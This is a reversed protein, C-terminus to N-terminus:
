LNGPQLNFSQKCAEQIAEHNAAVVPRNITEDMDAVGIPKDAIRSADQFFLVNANLVGVIYLFALILLLLFM